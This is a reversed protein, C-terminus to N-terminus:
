QCPQGGHLNLRDMRFTTFYEDTSEVDFGILLNFRNQRVDGKPTRTRVFGFRDIIPQLCDAILAAPFVKRHGFSIFHFEPGRSMTAGIVEGDIERPTIDWSELSTMFDMRPIFTTDAIQGWIKEMIETRTM